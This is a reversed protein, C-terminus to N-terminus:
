EGRNDRQHRDMQAANLMNKPLADANGTGLNKQIEDLSQTIVTKLSPCEETTVTELVMDTTIHSTDPDREIDSLVGVVYDLNTDHLPRDLIAFLVKSTILPHLLPTEKDFLADRTHKLSEHFLAKVLTQNPKSGGCM